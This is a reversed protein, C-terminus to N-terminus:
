PVAEVTAKGIASTWEARLEDSIPLRRNEYFATHLSTAGQIVKAVLYQNDLGPCETTQWEYLIETPEKRLEIWKVTPCKSVMRERQREFLQLATMREVGGPFSLRTVRETWDQITEGPLFYEVLIQGDKNSTNGIRWNRKDFSILLGEPRVGRIMASRVIPQSIHPYKERFSKVTRDYEDVVSSNLRISGLGVIADRIVDGVGQGAYVFKRTGLYLVQGKRVEFTFRDSATFIQNGKTVRVMRYEGYPLSVYFEADSGRDDCQIVYDKGTAEQRVVLAISTFRDFFEIPKGWLEITVRGIVVSEEKAGLTYDLPISTVSTVCGALGLFAILMLVTVKM